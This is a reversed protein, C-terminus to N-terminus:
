QAKKKTRCVSCERRGPRFDTLPKIQGCYSCVQHDEEIEQSLGVFMRPNEKVIQWDLARISYWRDDLGTADKIADCVLDVVNIADGRHNPKQVYIDIWLKGQHIKIKSRNLAAKIEWAILDRQENSTKRNYVHGQGALSWIHNKSMSYDFPIAIRLMWNPDPRELWGISKARKKSIAAGREVKFSHQKQNSQALQEKSRKQPNDKAWKSKREADKIESCALCYKQM